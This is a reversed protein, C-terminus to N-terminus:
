FSPRFSLGLSTGESGRAIEVRLLTAKPAHVSVGLGYSKHLDRLTLDRARGAVKGADAFLAMDLFPGATWRYEATLLMRNRDRFRWTPYGRLSRSGGLDPMLYFPVSHGDPTSTTSALARLAMVWNERVLPVFQNVEADVRQFSYPGNGTERYDALEVRYLGGRRTYAPATRTDVEVFARSRASAPDLAPGGNTALSDLGGGVAFIRAPQLRVSAGITTARYPTDSREAGALNGIGYDALAPADTWNAHTQLLLRGSMMAPLTVSADIAKYNRISWAAHADFSGSDGFRGRWGPGIALAGGPYASGVFAYVPPPNLLANQVMLIRRELKEPVYPHLVAAKAEREAALTAERTPL